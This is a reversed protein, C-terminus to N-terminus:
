KSYSSFTTAIEQVWDTQRRSRNESCRSLHSRVLQRSTESGTQVLGMRAKKVIDEVQNLGYHCLRRMTELYESTLTQFQSISYELRMRDNEAEQQYSSSVTSALEKSTKLLRRYNNIRQTALGIEQVLRVAEEADKQIKINSKEQRKLALEMAKHALKVAEEVDKKLQKNNPEGLQQAINMAEKALRIADELDKQNKKNNGEATQQALYMSEETLKSAEKVNAQIKLDNVEKDSLTNSALSVLADGFFHETVSNSVTILLLFTFVLLLINIRGIAEGPVNAKKLLWNDVPSKAFIFTGLVAILLSIFISM